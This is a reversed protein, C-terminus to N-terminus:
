PKPAGLRTLEGRFIGLSPAAAVPEPLRNWGAVARPYFSYKYADNRCSPPVYGLSHSHRTPRTIPTLYTAPDIGVLGHRMKYMTVLTSHYRRLELTPWDLKDLMNTVSSTNHYRHCAWRAARRQVMEIKNIEIQKYPCWVTSAYEAQSRILSKYAVSKVSPNGIRLNRKM